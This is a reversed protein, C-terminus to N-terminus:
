MRTCTPLLCFRHDVGVYVAGASVRLFTSKSVLRNNSRSPEFFVARKSQIQDRLAPSAAMREKFLDLVRFSPFFVLAGGKPAACLHSM